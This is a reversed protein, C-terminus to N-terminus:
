DYDEIAEGQKILNVLQEAQALRDGNEYIDLNRFFEMVDKHFRALKDIYDKSEKTPFVEAKGKVLEYNDWGLAMRSIKKRIEWDSM